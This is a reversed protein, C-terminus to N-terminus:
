AEHREGLRLGGDCRARRDDAVEAVVVDGEELRRHRQRRVPGAERLAAEDNRVREDAEVVDRVDGLDDGALPIGDLAHETRVHGPTLGWCLDPIARLM